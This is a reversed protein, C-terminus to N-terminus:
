GQRSAKPAKRQRPPRKRGLWNPRDEEPETGFNVLEMTSRRVLRGAKDMEKSTQCVVGGPVDMAVMALTTVTGKPNKQVTRVCAVNKTESLVKRPMELAVVEATTDGLVNTGTADTTVSERKLIYPALSDTYYISTKTSSTPTASEM